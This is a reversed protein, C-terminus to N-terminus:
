SRPVPPVILYVNDDITSPDKDPGASYFYPRGGICKGGDGDAVQELATARRSEPDSGTYVNNRRVDGVGYQKGAPPPGLLEVSNIATVDNIRGSFQPHVYRIPEGWADFVSTLTLPEAGQHVSLLTTRQRVFKQPLQDLTKKVEPIANAQLLFLGVSDIMPNGPLFGNGGPENDSM